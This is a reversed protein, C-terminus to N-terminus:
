KDVQYKKIVKPAFEWVNLTHGGITKQNTKDPRIVVGIRDWYKWIDAIQGRYSLRTYLISKVSPIPYFLAGDQDYICGGDSDMFEHADDTIDYSAIISLLEDATYKLDNQDDEILVWSSGIWTAFKVWGKPQSVKYPLLRGFLKYYQQNFHAAKPMRATTTELMKLDGGDGADFYVRIVNACSATNGIVCEVKTISEYLIQAEDINDGEQPIEAMKGSM